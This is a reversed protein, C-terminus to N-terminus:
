LSLFEEFLSLSLFHPNEELPDSKKKKYYHTLTISNPVKVTFRFGAPVSSGYEAVMEIEPLRIKGKKFLSWFWQDVEVTSYRNSYEELYNIDKAKSYVLGRWSPYKWSCTGIRLNSM